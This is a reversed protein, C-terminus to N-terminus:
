KIVVKRGNIINIGKVAKQLKQGQLNYIARVGTTPTTDVTKIADVNPETTGYYKLRFNDLVVWDNPVGEYKEVSFTLYGTDKLEFKITNNYLGNQFFDVAASTTSDPIRITKDASERGLGPVLNNGAAISVLPVTVDSVFMNATTALTEGAAMKAVVDEFAGDRYYGQVSLTYWGPIIADDYIEQMLNFALTNWGEYAFDPYNNGRGWVGTGGGESSLVWPDLTLRQDFGPNTILYSADVPADSTAAAVLADWEAKTILMWQNSELTGTNMDTDVVNYSYGNNNDGGRWGLYFLNGNGQTQGLRVINFVNTKGEVPVFQWSDDNDCDVYGNWGLFDNTGISGNPRFTEIRYGGDIATGDKKTGVLKMANSAYTLAEHAGWSEGAGLLQKEGVNYIFYMGDAAPQSGVFAETHREAANRKRAIRLPNLLNNIADATKCAEIGATAAALKETLYGNDTVTQCVAITKRLTTVSGSAGIISNISNTLTKAYEKLEAADFNVAIENNAADVLTQLNDKMAQTLDVTTTALAMADEVAQKSAAYDVEEVNIGCDYFRGGWNQQIETAIVNKGVNLYKSPIHVQVPNKGNTWRTNEQLLVGNVYTKYNDDHCVNLAYSLQTNVKDLTFNRRIWFGTNESTNGNQAQNNNIGDPWVTKVEAMYGSNGIPMPTDDWATDDFEPLTWSKSEQRGTIVPDKVHTGNETFYMYNFYSTGVWLEKGDTNDYLSMNSLDVTSNKTGWAFDFVAKFNPVEVSTFDVSYETPTGATISTQDDSLIKADDNNDCLKVTVQDYDVSANMTAKFTYSHTPDINIPSKFHVQSQWTDINETAINITYVDGAKAEYLKEWGHLSNPTNKSNFGYGGCSNFITKGTWPTVYGMDLGGPVLTYLGCDAFAGGSNQHVHVALVNETVGDHIILAKQEETLKYVADPDWGDTYSNILVGNLYYESPADDHAAALYVDGSLLQSTTFTRRIYIDAMIESTTWQYTVPASNYQDTNSTFPAQHEEWVIPAATQDNMDEIEAMNYGVEFWQKGAGDPSPTQWVKNYNPNTNDHSGEYKMGTNCVWTWASWQRGEVTAAHKTSPLIEINAGVASIGGQAKAGIAMLVLAISLLAKKM